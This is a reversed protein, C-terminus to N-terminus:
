ECFGEFMCCENINSDDTNPVGDGDWDDMCDPTGNGDADLPYTDSTQGEDVIGDLDNDLGDCDFDWNVCYHSNSLWGADEEGSCDIHGLRFVVDLPGDESVNSHEETHFFLLGEWTATGAGFNLPDDPSVSDICLWMYSGPPSGHLSATAQITASYCPDRLDVSGSLRGGHVSAEATQFYFPSVIHEGYTYSTLTFGIDGDDWYDGDLYAGDYWYDKACPRDGAGGQVTLEMRLGEMRSDVWAWSYVDEGDTDVVIPNPKYLTGDLMAVRKPIDDPCRRTAQFEAQLGLVHEKWGEPWTGDENPGGGLEAGNAPYGATSVCSEGEEEVEPESTSCSALSTTGIVLACLLAGARTDIPSHM